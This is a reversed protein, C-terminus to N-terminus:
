NVRVPFGQGKLTFHFYFLGSDRWCIFPTPHPLTKNDLPFGQRNNRYAVSKERSVPAKVDASGFIKAIPHTTM